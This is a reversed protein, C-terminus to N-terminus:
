KKIKKGNEKSLWYKRNSKEVEWKKVSSNEILWAPSYDAGNTSLERMCFSGM